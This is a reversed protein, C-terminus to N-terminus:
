IAENLQVLLAAYNDGSVTKGKEYYGIHVVSQSDWFVSIM